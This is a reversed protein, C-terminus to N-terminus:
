RDLPACNREYAAALQASAGDMQSCLDVVTDFRTLRYLALDCLVDFFNIWLMFSISCQGGFCSGRKCRVGGWRYVLIYLWIFVKIVLHRGLDCTCVWLSLSFFIIITCPRGLYWFKPLTQGKNPEIVQCTDSTMTDLKTEPQRPQYDSESQSTVPLNLTSGIRIRMRKLCCHGQLCSSSKSAGQRGLWSLSQGGPVRWTVTWSSTRVRLRETELSAPWRSFRSLM